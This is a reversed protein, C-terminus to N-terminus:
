VLMMSLNDLKYFIQAWLSAMWYENSCLFLWTVEMLGLVGILITELPSPVVHFTLNQHDKMVLCQMAENRHYYQSIRFGNFIRRVVRITLQMVEVM